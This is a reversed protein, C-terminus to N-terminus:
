KKCWEDFSLHKGEPLQWLCEGKNQYSNIHKYEAFALSQMDRNYDEISCDGKNYPVEELVEIVIIKGQGLAQNLQPNFHIGKRIAVIHGDNMFMRSYLNEAKGVYVCKKQDKKQDKDKIFIGYVGRVPNIFKLLRDDLEIFSQQLCWKVTQNRNANTDNSDKSM